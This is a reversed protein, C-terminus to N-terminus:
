IIGELSLVIVVCSVNDFSDKALASKIIMNAFDGCLDNINYDDSLKGKEKLIIKVCDLLEENSLVDFIGDCGIIILNFENNIEFEKIDPLAVIVGKKGGFKEEKALIDGFTRSVSLRGPFVRWPSEIEKGNQYIPFFSPTQYTYGGEKKIREKEKINSPKHDETFYFIKNNKIIVARSDGVNGIICKNNQICVIIGCSGSSDKLKGKEDIASTTLFKEETSIIAKKIGEISFEQIQKHLNEKLYLSCGNGGHGDYLGFFYLSENKINIETVTITDENYDRINGISSNYSYAKILPNNITNNSITSNVFNKYTNKFIDYSLEVTKKMSYLKSFTNQEGRLISFLPNPYKMDMKEIFNDIEKLEDLPSFLNNKNVLSNTLILGNENNNKNNLVNNNTFPTMNTLKNSGVINKNKKHILLHKNNIIEKNKETLNNKPRVGRQSTTKKPLSLNKKKHQNFSDKDNEKDVSSKKNKIPVINNHFTFINTHNNLSNSNISNNNSNNSIELNSNYCSDHLLNKIKPFIVNKKKLLSNTKILNNANNKPLQIQKKDEKKDKDSESRLNNKNIKLEPLARKPIIECNQTTSGEKGNTNDIPYINNINNNIHNIPINNKHIEKIKKRPM